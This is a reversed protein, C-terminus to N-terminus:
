WIVHQMTIQTIESDQLGQWSFFSSPPAALCVQLLGGGDGYLWIPLLELLGVPLEQHTREEIGIENGM